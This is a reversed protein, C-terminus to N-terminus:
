VRNRAAVPPDPFSMRASMVEDPIALMKDYAPKPYRMHPVAPNYAPQPVLPEAPPAEEPRLFGKLEEATIGVLSVVDPDVWADPDIASESTAIELNLGEPGAFYISRCMGHDAPGFVPVGHSRIRNRLSLLEELTEVGFSVHQMTGPASPAGGNAAHSSGLESKGAANEPMSVFAISSRDNLELFGHLAGEVGHMWYLALLRMGLVESFFKIQTKMDGTSIALHHVGNIKSM